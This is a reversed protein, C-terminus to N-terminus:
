FISVFASDRGTYSLLSQAGSEDPKVTAELICYADGTKKATAVGNALVTFISTDSSWWRADLVNLEGFAIQEGSRTIAIASFDEHDGVAMSVEGPNITIQKIEVEESMNRDDKDCGNLMFLCILCLIATKVPNVKMKM